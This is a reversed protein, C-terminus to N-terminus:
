SMCSIKWRGEWHKLYNKAIDIKETLSIDKYNRTFKILGVITLYVVHLTSFPMTDWIRQYEASVSAGELIMAEATNLAFINTPHPTETM